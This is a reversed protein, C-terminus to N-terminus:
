GASVSLVPPLRTAACSGTAGADASAFVDGSTAGFYLELGQGECEVEEGPFARATVSFPPGELAFLGKRTGVLVETM